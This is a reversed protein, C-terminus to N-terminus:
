AGTVKAPLPVGRASRSAPSLMRSAPMSACYSFQKKKLFAEFGDDVALSTM